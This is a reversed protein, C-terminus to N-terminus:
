GKNGVCIYWITGGGLTASFGFTVASSSISGIDATVATSNTAVVCVPTRGFSSGFTMACSTVVGGGVTVVGALDTGDVSPSTGCTGMSPTTGSSVFHSNNQFGFGMTADQSSVTLLFDSPARALASSVSVQFIGGTATSITLSNASVSNVIVGGGGSVTISSTFTRINAQTAAATTAASGASSTVDGTLAPLQAAPLTGSTFSSANLNILLAGSIAPLQTSGNTQVLQSAGNFTNGQLTVSSPNMRYFYTAAGILQGAVTSSDFVIAAVSTSTAPGVYGSLSGTTVAVPSGTGGSTVTSWFPAVTGGGTTLVQGSTGPTLGSIVNSSGTVSYYAASYQNANNISGNPGSGGGGTASVTISGDTNTSVTVNSGGQVTSTSLPTILDPKGTQINIVPRYIWGASFALKPLIVLAALCAIKKLYGM